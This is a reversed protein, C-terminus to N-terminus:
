GNEEAEREGAADADPAEAGRPEADPAEAGQPDGEADAGEEVMSYREALDITEVQVPMGVRARQLGLVIVQDDPRLARSSALGQGTSQEDAQEGDASMMAGSEAPEGKARVVRLEGVRRGPEVDCRQV